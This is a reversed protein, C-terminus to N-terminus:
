WGAPNSGTERSIGSGTEPYTGFQKEHLHAFFYCMEECEADLLALAPDADVAEYFRQGAAVIFGRCYLFGDDSGDTHEHIEARDITHLTRELVRDLATLEASSLGASLARLHTLFPELWMEVARLEDDDEAPDREVLARRLDTQEPGCAAWASEILAWFRTVDDDTM